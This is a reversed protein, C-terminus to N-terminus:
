IFETMLDNVQIIEGDIHTEAKCIDDSHGFYGCRRCIYNDDYVKNINSVVNDLINYWIKNKINFECENINHEKKCVCMNNNKKYNKNLNTIIKKYSIDESNKYNKYIDKYSINKSNYMTIYKSIIDEITINNLINNNIIFVSDISFPKNKKTYNCYKGNLHLNYDEEFNNISKGIYYKNNQCKLVYIYEM